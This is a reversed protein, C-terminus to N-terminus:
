SRKSRSRVLQSAFFALGIVCLVWTTPEPVAVINYGWAFGEHIRAVQTNMNFTALYTEFRATRNFPISSVHDGPIDSFTALTGGDEAVNFYWPLGDDNPFPDIHRVLAGGPGTNDTFMQIWKFDALAYGDEADIAYTARMRAGGNPLALTPSGTPSVAQYKEITLTGNLLSGAVATWGPYQAVDAAFTNRFNSGLVPAGLYTAPAPNLTVVGTAGPPLGALPVTPVYDGGTPLVLMTVALAPACPLMALLTALGAILTQSRQMTSRRCCFRFDSNRRTM